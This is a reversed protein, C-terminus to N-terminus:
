VEDGSLEVFNDSHYGVFFKGSDRSMIICHGPMNPIDGFFVYPPPGFTKLYTEGYTKLNPKTLWEPDLKILSYQRPIKPVKPRKM